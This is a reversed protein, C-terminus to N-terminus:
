IESMSQNEAAQEAVMAQLFRKKRTYRLEMDSQLMRRKAEAQLSHLRTRLLYFESDASLIFCHVSDRM